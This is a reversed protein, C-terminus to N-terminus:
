AERTATLKGGDATLEVIRREIGEARYGLDWDRTLTPGQDDVANNATVIYGRAPNLLSPLQDFPMTGAWGTESTWGALPM